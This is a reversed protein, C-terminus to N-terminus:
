GHGKRIADRAVNREGTTVVEKGTWMLHRNIISPFLKNIDLGNSVLYIAADTIADQRSQVISDTDDSPEAIFQAQVNRPARALLWKIAIAWDVKDEDGAVLHRPIAANVPGDYLRYFTRQTLRRRARPNAVWATVKGFTCLRPLFDVTHRPGVGVRKIPEGNVKEVFM